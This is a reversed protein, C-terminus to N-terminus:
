QSCGKSFTWTSMPQRAADRVTGAVQGYWDSVVSLNQSSAYMFTADGGITNRPYASDYFTADGPIAGRAIATGRLILNLLPNGNLRQQLRKGAEYALLTAALGLWVPLGTVMDLGRIM